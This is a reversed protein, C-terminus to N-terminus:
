SANAAKWCEWAVALRPDEYSETVPDIRIGFDPSDIRNNLIFAEFSTKVRAAAQDWDPNFVDSRVYCVAALDDKNTLEIGGDTDDRMYINEPMVFIDVPNAVTACSELADPWEVTDDNKENM